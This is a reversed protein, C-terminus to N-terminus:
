WFIRGDNEIRKETKGGVDEIKKRCIEISCKIKTEFEISNVELLKDNSTNENAEIEISDSTVFVEELKHILDVITLKISNIASASRKSLQLFESEESQKEAISKKLQELHEQNRDCM